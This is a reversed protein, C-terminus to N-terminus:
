TCQQLIKHTTIHPHHPHSIRPSTFRLHTHIIHTSVHPHHSDFIRSKLEVACQQVQVIARRRLWASRAKPWAGPEISASARLGSVDRVAVSAESVRGLAMSAPRTGVVGRELARERRVWVSAAQCVRRHATGRLLSTQMSM